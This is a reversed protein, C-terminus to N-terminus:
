EEFMNDKMEDLKKMLYTSYSAHNYKNNRFIRSMKIAEDYDDTTKPFQSIVFIGRETFQEDLEGYDRDLKITYGNKKFIRSETM